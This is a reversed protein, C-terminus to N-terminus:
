NLQQTQSYRDMKNNRLIVLAYDKEIKDIFQYNYLILEPTLSCTNNVFQKFYTTLYETHDRYKVNACIIDNFNDYFASSKNLVFDKSNFLADNFYVNTYKKDNHVYTIYVYIDGLKRFFELDLTIDLDDINFSFDAKEILYKNLFDINDIIESLFIKHEPYYEITPQFMLKKKNLYEDLDLIESFYEENKVKCVLNISEIPFCKKSPQKMSNRVNHFYELGICVGTHIYKKVLIGVVVGLAFQKM